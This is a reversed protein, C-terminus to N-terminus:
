FSVFLQLLEIGFGTKKLVVYRFNIRKQNAMKSVKKIM